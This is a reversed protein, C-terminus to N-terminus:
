RGGRKFVPLAPQRTRYINRRVKGLQSARPKSKHSITTGYRGLRCFGPVVFRSKGSAWLVLGHDVTHLKILSPTFTTALAQFIPPFLLSSCLFRFDATSRFKSCIILRDWFAPRWSGMSWRYTFMQLFLTVGLSSAQSPNHSRGAGQEAIAHIVTTSHLTRGVRGSQSSRSFTRRERSIRQLIDVGFAPLFGACAIDRLPLLQSGSTSRPLSAMSSLVRCVPGSAWCWILLLLVGSWSSPLRQRFRIVAGPLCCVATTRSGTRFFRCAFIRHGSETYM